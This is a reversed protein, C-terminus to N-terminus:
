KKSLLKIGYKLIKIRTTVDAASAAYYAADAASSASAASAYAADAAASASASSAASSAADADAASAAYYVSAASSAKNEKSPNKICKKAAKIAEKPRKDDPYKKEYISLVLNASYVAYSVYQKYTMCRVILWNAWQLKDKKILQKVFEIDTLGILKNEIVFEMDLQCANKKELFRKTIKM